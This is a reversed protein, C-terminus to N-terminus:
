KKARMNLITIKNEEAFKILEIKKKAGLNRALIIGQTKPNLKSMDSDNRVLVPYLGKVKGYDSKKAGYGISPMKPHGVRKLRLKNHKGTPKRWKQIKRRGKGLKIHRFTDAKLFKPKM